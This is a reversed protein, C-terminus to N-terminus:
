ALRVITWRFKIDYASGGNHSYLLRLNEGKNLLVINTANMRDTAISGSSSSGTSSSCIWGYDTGEIHGLKYGAFSANHEWEGMVYYYGDSPITYADLGFETENDVSYTGSQNYYTNKILNATSGSKLSEIEKEVNMESSGITLDGTLSVDSKLAVKSM